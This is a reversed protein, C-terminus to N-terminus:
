ERGERKVGEKNRRGGKVKEDGPVNSGEWHHEPWMKNRKKPPEPDERWGGFISVRHNTIERPPVNGKKTKHRVLLEPKNM